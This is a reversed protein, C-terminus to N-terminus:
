TDFFRQTSDAITGNGYGSLVYSVLWQGDTKCYFSIEAGRNLQGSGSGKKVRFRTCNDSNKCVGTSGPQGPHGVVLETLWGSVNRDSKLDQPLHRIPPPDPGPLAVVAPSRGGPIYQPAFTSGGNNDTPVTSFIMQGWTNISPDTVEYRFRMVVLVGPAAPPLHLLAHGGASNGTWTTEYITDPSLDVGNSDVLAAHDMSIYDTMYDLGCGAGTVFRMYKHQLLIESPVSLTGHVTLTRNFYANGVDLNGVLSTNGSVKLTDGADVTGGGIVLTTGVTAAGAALLTGNCQINDGTDSGLTASGAVYLRAGGLASLSQAPEGIVLTSGVTAGAALLTGNVTLNTGVTAPGAEVNLASCTVGRLVTQGEVHLNGDHLTIDGGSVDLTSNLKNTGGGVVINGSVTANGTVSLKVLAFQEITWPYSWYSGTYATPPILHDDFRIATLLGKALGTNHQANFVDYITTKIIATTLGESATDPIGKVTINVIDGKMPSVGGFANKSFIYALGHVQILGDADTLNAPPGGDGTYFVVSSENVMSVLPDVKTVGFTADTFIDIPTLYGLAV